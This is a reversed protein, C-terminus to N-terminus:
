MGCHKPSIGNAQFALAQDRTHPFGDMVYGKKVCDYLQLRANILRLWLETPLAQLYFLVTTYIFVRWFIGGM